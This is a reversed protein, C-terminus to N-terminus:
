VVEYDIADMMEGTDILPKDSGKAAITVPSLPTFNATRIYDRIDDVAQGGVDDLVQATTKRGLLIKPAQKAMIKAYKVTNKKMSPAIFPRAPVNAKISGLEHVAVHLAMDLGSKSHKGGNPVGVTLKKKGMRKTQNIIDDIAKPNKRKIKIM